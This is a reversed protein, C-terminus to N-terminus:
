LLRKNAKLFKERYFKIPKLFSKLSERALQAHHKYTEEHMNIASEMKRCLDDVDGPNVIMAAPGGAEPLGGDNSVIAPVGVSRAEIPTLGLDEKTNAPALLWKSSALLINKDDENMFGPLNIKNLLNHKKILTIIKQRIPGDGVITLPWTNDNTNLRAYAEVIEEIGKNKIWRGIFVFGKRKEPIVYQIPLKCVTPVCQSNKRKRKSEWTNWVYNSNYWRENALRITMNWIIQRLSFKSKFRRNHITLYIRKKLAYAPLIIDPSANQGHIVDAWKILPLLNKSGKNIFHLERCAQDAMSILQESPEVNSVLKYCLKVNFENWTSAADAIAIMFAEIGGYVGQSSGIILLNIKKSVKM